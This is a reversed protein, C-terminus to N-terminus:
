PVAQLPAPHTPKPLEIWSFWPQHQRRSVGRSPICPELAQLPIPLWALLARGAQIVSNQLWHLGIRAFSLGRKWHPDVLPRQGSLSVAFGQLSSLLVAIAVM